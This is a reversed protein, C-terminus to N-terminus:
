PRGALSIALARSTITRPYVALLRDATYNMNEDLRVMGGTETAFQALLYSIRRASTVGARRLTDKNSLIAQVIDRNARPSFARIHSESLIELADQAAAGGSLLSLSVILATLHIQM